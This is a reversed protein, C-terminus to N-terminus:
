ERQITEAPQAARAEDQARERKRENGQGRYREAQATGHRAQTGRELASAFPRRGADRGSRQAEFGVPVAREALARGVACQQLLELPRLPDRADAAPFPRPGVVAQAARVLGAADQADVGCRPHARGRYEFQDV